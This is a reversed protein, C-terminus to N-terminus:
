RDIVSTKELAFINDVNGNGQGDNYIFGDKVSTQNWLAIIYVNYWM